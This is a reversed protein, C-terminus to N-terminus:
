KMTKCAYSDVARKISAHDDNRNQNSFSKLKEPYGHTRIQGVLNNQLKEIYKAAAEMVEVQFITSFYINLVTKIVTKIVNTSM